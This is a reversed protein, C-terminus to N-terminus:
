SDSHRCPDIMGESLSQKSSLQTLPQRLGWASDLAPMAAIPPATKPPGADSVYWRQFRPVRDASPMLAAHVDKLPGHARHPQRLRQVNAPKSDLMM